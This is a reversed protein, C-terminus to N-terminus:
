CGHGRSYKNQYNGGLLACMVCVCVCVCVRASVVAHCSVSATCWGRRRLSHTHTHTHTSMGDVGGIHTHTHTHAHVSVYALPLSRRGKSQPSSVMRTLSSISARREALPRCGELRIAVSHHVIRFVNCIPIDSNLLFQCLLTFSLSLSLSLSLSPTLSLSLSSSSLLPSLSVPVRAIVAV